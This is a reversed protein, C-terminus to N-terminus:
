RLSFKGLLGTNFKEKDIVDSVSLDFSNAIVTLYFLVRGMQREVEDRCKPCLEGEIHTEVLKTLDDFADEAEKDDMCLYPQKHANINVCGCSTAAKSISRCLRACSDQLKTTQDIISKNRILVSDVFTQFDDIQNDM